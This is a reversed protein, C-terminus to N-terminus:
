CGATARPRDQGGARRHRAPAPQRGGESHVEPAVAAGPVSGSPGARASRSTRDLDAEYTRWTLRGGRPGGAAQPRLLGEPAPRRHHPPPARHVKRRGRGAAQRVRDLGQSVSERGQTRRTRQQGANGEAGARREVLEAPVHREAKNAPKAAVIAPDSKEREHM